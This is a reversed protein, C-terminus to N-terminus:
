AIIIEVRDPALRTSPIDAHGRSRAATSAALRTPVGASFGGGGSPTPTTPYVPHIRPQPARVAVTQLLVFVVFLAVILTLCGGCGCGRRGGLVIV